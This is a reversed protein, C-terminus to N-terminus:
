VRGATELLVIDPHLVPDVPLEGAVAAGRPTALAVLAGSADLVRLRTRPALGPIRRGAPSRPLDRGHRLAQQGEATVTM